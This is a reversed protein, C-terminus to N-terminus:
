SEPFLALFYQLCVHFILTKVYNIIEKKEIKSIERIESYKLICNKLLELNFKEVKLLSRVLDAIDWMFNNYEIKEYDILSIAEL